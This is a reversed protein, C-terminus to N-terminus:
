NKLEKIYQDIRQGFVPNPMMQKCKEYAAIAEPKQGLQKYTEALYFYSEFDPKHAIVTKFRQVAKDFQGSKMSFLGLNLNANINDPDQAVVERLLAIGQMPSAGGNVYAVGLGTKGELSQPKLKLANTFAEVAGTIFAPTVATDQTIKFADNFRSGATLWTDFNNEKRAVAQYYFAAPAPQNVDDWAAALQKQLSLKDADGSAKQLRSELDNIKAALGEGIATKAPESVMQVTVTSAARTSQAPQAAEHTQSAKILGKVPLSYLYGMVAVIAVAIVIQKRNM